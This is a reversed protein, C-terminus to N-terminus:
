PTPPTFGLQDLAAAAAAPRLAYGENRGSLIYLTEGDPAWAWATRQVEHPLTLILDPQWEGPQAFAVASLEHMYAFRRGDPSFTSYGYLAGPVPCKFQHAPQTPASTRHISFGEATGLVLWEGDPSFEALTAGSVPLAAQREGGPLAYLRAETAPLTTLLAAWRGDASLRQIITSDASGLATARTADGDPWLWVGNTDPRDILWHRGARDISQLQALGPAALEAHDEWGPGAPTDVLRTRRIGLTPSSYLLGGDPLFALAKTKGAAYRYRATERHQPLDYARLFTTSQGVLWRGDPSVAAQRWLGSNQGLAFGLPQVVDLPALDLRALQQFSSSGAAQRGDASLRLGHPGAQGRLLERGATIDWLRLVSDTDLSLLRRGDPLMAFRSARMNGPRLTLVQRKDAADWVAIQPSGNYAETILHHGDPTWAPAASGVDGDIRWLLQRDRLQWLELGDDRLVALRTGDPSPKIGYITTGPDGVPHGTGTRADCWMLQNGTTTYWWGSDDSAFDLGVYQIGAPQHIWHPVTAGAAWVAQTGDESEALIWADSPAYRTERVRSASATQLHRLVQGDRMRRVEITTGDAAPVAAHELASDFGVLQSFRLHPVAQPKGWQWDDLALAALAEARIAATPGALAASARLLRLAEHRQGTRGSQRVGRAQAFLSDRLALRADAEAIESRALAAHLQHNREVLLTTAAVTGTAIIALAAALAPNRRAWRGLRGAPSPPRAHIPRGALFNELDAWLAHASAYRAAPDKALCTLIITELDAPVAPSLRRPAVPETTGIQALVAAPSDGTFPPRGTVSEYLIAGLGYLDLAPTPDAGSLVEPALYSPSGALIGTRTHESATGAVSGSLGFDCLKPEGTGTLLVNSPKLDRHLVGLAHARAVAAALKLGLTAAARPALPGQKLRARLDGGECYEMAIFAGSEGQGVEHVAVVHPHTIAAAARAERLLRAPGTADGTAAIVKLAVLRDLSRQRVLSVVGMGGRGLEGLFEYDATGAPNAATLAGALACRPCPGGTAAADYHLSCTPCTAM